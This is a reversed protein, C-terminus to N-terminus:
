LKSLQANMKKALDSTALIHVGEVWSEKADEERKLQKYSLGAYYHIAQRIDATYAKPKSRITELLVEFDARANDRRNIFTPLHYNNVARIFRVFVDKPVAEVAQDMKKLGKKLLNIKNPGPFADRSALTYASGLYAQMLHHKPDKQTLQELKGVLLKTADKDGQQSQDHLKHVEAILKSRYPKTAYSKTQLCTIVIVVLLYKFFLHM